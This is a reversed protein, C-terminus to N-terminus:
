GEKHMAKNCFIIMAVAGLRSFVSDSFVLFFIATAYLVVTACARLARARQVANNARWMEHEVSKLMADYQERVIRCGPNSCVSSTIDSYHAEGENM